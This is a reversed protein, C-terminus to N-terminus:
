GGEAVGVEYRWRAPDDGNAYTKFGLTALVSRREEFTFQDASDKARECLNFLDSGLRRSDAERRELEGIIADLQEIDRGARATYEDAYSRLAPDAPLSSLFVHLAGAAAARALKAAALDASPEPTAILIKETLAPNVLIANVIGWAWDHAELLPM